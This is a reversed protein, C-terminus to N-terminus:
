ICRGPPADAPLADRPAGLLQMDDPNDTRLVIRQPVSGYLATPVEARRRASIVLHLGLPRGEAVLRQFSEVLAGFDVSGVSSEFAAYDDLLLVIRPLGAANSAHYDA